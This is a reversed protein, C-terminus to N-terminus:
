FHLWSSDLKSISPPDGSDGQYPIDEAGRGLNGFLAQFDRLIRRVDPEESEEDKGSDNARGLLRFDRRVLTEPDGHQERM